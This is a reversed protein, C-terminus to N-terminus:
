DTIILYFRRDSSFKETRGIANFTVTYNIPIKDTFNPTTPATPGVNITVKVQVKQGKEVIFQPPDFTVNVWDPLDKPSLSINFKDGLNIYYEIKVVKAEIVVVGTKGKSITFFVSGPMEAIRPEVEEFGEALLTNWYIRPVYAEYPPPWPSTPPSPSPSPSAPTPIPTPSAPPMVQFISVGMVIAVVLIVAVIMIAQVKTVASKSLLM